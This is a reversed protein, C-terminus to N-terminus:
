NGLLRAEFAAKAAAWGADAAERLQRARARRRQVEAVVERQVALPPVPLILDPVDENALRPHTNGTMMHITQLLMLKSRLAVALYDAHIAAEDRVRLVHFEPSCCGDAEALYVKNLYPRLRMFLVDGALFTFCNGESTESSAVLEGTHSQVHGLSLYNESPTKIQQRVFDVLDGLREHRVGAEEIARLTLLREPHFYEPSIRGKQFADAMWVGFVRRGDNAPTSIGLTALLYTDFGGLLAEAEALQRQRLARAANMAAVLEQQVPLPPLPIGFDRIEESNINTMGVIQRSVCDIQLRGTPANLFDSAFQSDLELPNTRVRILYSAFVWKGPERFVECKGVLEKSNTRNFLIDGLEIRYSDVEKEPLTVYKLDDLAWGDQQLNNMRVIPVGSPETSALTSSGYQVLTLKSGLPVAPYAANALREKVLPLM